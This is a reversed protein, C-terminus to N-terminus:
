RRVVKGKWGQQGQGHQSGAAQVEHEHGENESLAESWTSAVADIPLPSVGTLEVSKTASM